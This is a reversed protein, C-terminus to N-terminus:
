RNSQVISVNGMDAALGILLAQWWEIPVDTFWVLLLAALTM